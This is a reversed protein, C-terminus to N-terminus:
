RRSARSPMAASEKLLKKQHWEKWRSFSRAGEGSPQGLLLNGVSMDEDLEPWAIEVERM